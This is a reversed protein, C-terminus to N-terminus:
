IRPYFLGKTEGINMHTALPCANSPLPRTLDEV